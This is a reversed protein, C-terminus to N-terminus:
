ILQIFLFRDLVELWNTHLLVNKDKYEKRGEVYEENLFM